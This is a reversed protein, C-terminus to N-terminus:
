DESHLDNWFSAAVDSVYALLGECEDFRSLYDIAAKGLSPYFAFKNLYDIKDSYKDRLAFILESLEYAYVTEVYVVGPHKDEIIRDSVILDAGQFFRKNM